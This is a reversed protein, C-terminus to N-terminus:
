NQDCNPREIGILRVDYGRSQRKCMEERAKSGLDPKDYHVKERGRSRNLRGEIGGESHKDNAFRVHCGTSGDADPQALWALLGIMGTIMAAAILMARTGATGVLSRVATTLSRTARLSVTIRHTRSSWRYEM